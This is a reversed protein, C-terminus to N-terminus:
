FIANKVALREYLKRKSVWKHDAYMLVLHVRPIDSKNVVKHPVYNNFAYIGGAQFVFEEPELELARRHYSLSNVAQLVFHIKHGMNVVYGKNAAGTMDTHEALSTHPDIVTLDFEKLADIPFIDEVLKACEKAFDKINESALSSHLSAVGQHKRFNPSSQPMAVNALSALGKRALGKPMWGIQKVFFEYDM